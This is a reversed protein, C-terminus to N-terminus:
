CAYLICKNLLMDFSESNMKDAADKFHLQLIRLVILDILNINCYELVCTKDCDIEQM